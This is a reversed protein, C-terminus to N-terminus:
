SHFNYFRSNEIPLGVADVTIDLSESVGGKFNGAYYDALGQQVTIGLEKKASTIVTESEASRTLTLM